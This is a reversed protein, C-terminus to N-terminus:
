SKRPSVEVRGHIFSIRPLNGRPVIDFTRPVINAFDSPMESYRCYPTSVNSQEVIPESTAHIIQPQQLMQQQQPMMEIQPIVHNPQQYNMMNMQPQQLMSVPNWSYLQENSAIKAVRHSKKRQRRQPYGDNSDKEATFRDRNMINLTKCEISYRYFSFFHMLFHILFKKNSIHKKVLFRGILELKSNLVFDLTQADM